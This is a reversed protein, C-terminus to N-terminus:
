NSAHLTRRYSSTQIFFYSIYYLAKRIYCKHLTNIICSTWIGIDQGMDTVVLLNIFISYTETRLCSHCPIIPRINSCTSFCEVIQFRIMLNLADFAIRVYRM